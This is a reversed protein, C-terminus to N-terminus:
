YHRNGMIERVGALDSRHLTELYRCETCYLTEMGEKNTSGRLASFCKPCIEKKMVRIHRILLYPHRFRLHCACIRGKTPYM